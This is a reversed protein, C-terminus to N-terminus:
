EADITVIQEHSLERGTVAETFTVKVTASTITPDMSEPLPLELTYHTGTFNSRYAKDFQDPSYTRSALLAPPANDMLAAAQIKAEGAVPLMRGQQDLPTLYVRILDDRGDDNTDVAGTYRAFAIKALVPPDAEKIAREGASAARLTEIEGLRLDMQKNLEDVQQKLKMNEARLTDNDNLFNKTGCGALLLVFLASLIVPYVPHSTPRKTRANIRSM